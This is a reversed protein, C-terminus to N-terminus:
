FDFKHKNEFLLVQIFFTKSIIEKTAMQSLVGIM